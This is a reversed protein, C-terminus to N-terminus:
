SQQSLDQALMFTNGDPDFFTALSVMGPITQIDGDFRVGQGEMAKKSAAVDHVGFTITAGGGKAQEETVSLGLTLGPTSTKLECWGLDDMKYVLELGLVEQYWALSKDLDSVSLAATVTGDYANKLSM